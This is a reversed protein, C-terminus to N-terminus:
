RSVEFPFNDVVAVDFLEKLMKTFEEIDSFNGKFAPSSYLKYLVTFAHDKSNNWETM